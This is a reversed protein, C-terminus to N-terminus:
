CRGKETIVPSLRDTDRLMRVDGAVITGVARSRVPWGDFPCNRGTTAFTAVDITWDRQPDILTVDGPGGVALRGLGHRDLGAISAPAATMMRLMEPWGMVGDEVLARAYLPLACELGVIGFAASAFDTQKRTLPHPAHDTALVTITGDAIGKKLAEVDEKRRLPPNMKAMTDYDRCADETLLLHHPSAEGTVPAGAARAARIIDVSGASSVHQAHYRCGIRHNLRVDRDLVLEEAVAPWGVLGLRTALPGANMSAGETLTPEECHQMVVGDGAATAALVARMIKADVVPSGDDTTGIAGARLLSRIPAPKEGARGVTACAVVFLRARMLRAATEQVQRVLRPSDLPPNTNPMCCVATFGGQVASEVGTAITEQHNPDPERFHVHIDILGPAVILGEADIRSADEVPVRGPTTEIAAV